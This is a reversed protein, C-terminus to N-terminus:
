GNYKRPQWPAKSGARACVAALSKPLSPVPQRASIAVGGVLLEECDRSRIRPSDRLAVNTLAGM